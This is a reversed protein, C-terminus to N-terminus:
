KMEAKSALALFHELLKALCQLHKVQSYEAQPTYQPLDPDAESCEAQTDTQSNVGNLMCVFNQFSDDMTDM